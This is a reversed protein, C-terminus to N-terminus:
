STVSRIPLAERACRRRRVCHPSPDTLDYGAGISTSRRKPVPEVDEVPEGACSMHVEDLARQLEPAIKTRMAEEAMRKIANYDLKSEFNKTVDGSTCGPYSM